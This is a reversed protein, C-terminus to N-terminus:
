SVQETWTHAVEFLSDSITDIQDKLEKGMRADLAYGSDTTTLNNALDRKYLVESTEKRSVGAFVDVTLNVTPQDYAKFKVKGALSDCSIIFNYSKLYDQISAADVSETNCFVELTDTDSIEALTVTSSYYGQEDITWSDAPINATHARHYSDNIEAQTKGKASDYIGSTDIFDGNSLKVSNAM